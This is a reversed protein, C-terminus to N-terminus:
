FGQKFFLLEWPGGATLLEGYGCGWCLPRNAFAMQGAQVGSSLSWSCNTSNM